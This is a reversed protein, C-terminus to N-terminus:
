PLSATCFAYSRKACSPQFGPRMRIPPYPCCTMRNAAGVCRLASVACSDGQPKRRPEAGGGDVLGQRVRLRDTGREGTWGVIRRDCARDAVSMCQSRETRGAVVGCREKDLSAR